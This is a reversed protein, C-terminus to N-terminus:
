ATLRNCITIKYQSITLSKVSIKGADRLRLIVLTYFALIFTLPVAFGFLFSYFTFLAQSL